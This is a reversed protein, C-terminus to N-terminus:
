EVILKSTGISNEQKNKVFYVGKELSQVSINIKDMNAYHTEFVVQGSLNYIQITGSNQKEFLILIKDKAPNPQIQLKKSEKSKINTGSVIYQSTAGTGGTQELIFDQVVNSYNTILFMYYEGATGTTAGASSGAGIEPTEENTSSYSCDVVNQLDIYDCTPNPFPGWIIYDIDNPATLSMVIDGSNEVLMYYWAPNPQSGLCDYNPGSEAPPENTGCAFNYIYDTCFPAAEACTGGVAEPGTTINHNQNPLYIVNASQEALSKYEEMQQVNANAMEYWNNETALIHEEPSNQVWDIKTQFAIRLSEYYAVSGKQMQQANSTIFVFLLVPVLILKKM